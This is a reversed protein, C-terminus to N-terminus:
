AAREKAEAICAELEAIFKEAAETTLFRYGGGLFIGVRGDTVVCCYPITDIM